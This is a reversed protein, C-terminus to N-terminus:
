KGRIQIYLAIARLASGFVNFFVFILAMAALSLGIGLISDEIVFFLFGIFSLGIQIYGVVQLIKGFGEVVKAQSIVESLLSNERLPSGFAPEKSIKSFENKCKPCKPKAFSFSHFSEGCNQCLKHPMQRNYENKPTAM